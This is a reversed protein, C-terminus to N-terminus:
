YKFDSLLKIGWKVDNLAQGIDMIRKIYDIRVYKNGKKSERCQNRYLRFERKELHKAIDENKVLAYTSRKLDVELEYENINSTKFINDAWFCFGVTIDYSNIEISHHGMDKTQIIISSGALPKKIIGNQVLINEIEKLM